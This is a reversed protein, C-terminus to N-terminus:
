ETVDLDRQSITTQFRIKKGGKTEAEIFITVRPQLGDGQPAGAINFKLSTIKMSSTSTLPLTSTGVIEEWIANDSLYFKQCENRSNRFLIEQTSGQCFNVKNGSCCDQTVGGITVDDKKAMRIARGMYELVYNIESLVEQTELIKRQARIGGLYVGIVSSSVLSILGIVVLLEILTFSKKM